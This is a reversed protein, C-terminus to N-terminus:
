TIEWLFFHSIAEHGSPSKVYFFIHYSMTVGLSKVCFFICLTTQYDCPSEGNFFFAIDSLPQSTIEGFITRYSKAVPLHHWAFFYCSIVQRDSPLKMYFIFHLTVQCNNPSKVYFFLAHYQPQWIFEGLFFFINLLM